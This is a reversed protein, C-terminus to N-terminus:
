LCGYLEPPRPTHTMKPDAVHGHWGLCCATASRKIKEMECSCVTWYQPWFGRFPGSVWQSQVVPRRIACCRLSTAYNSAVESHGVPLYKAAHDFGDPFLSRPRLPPHEHPTSTDTPMAESSSSSLVPASRDLRIVNIRCACDSYLLATRSTHRHPHKNSGIVNSAGRLSYPRSCAACAWAEPFYSLM